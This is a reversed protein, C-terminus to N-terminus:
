RNDSTLGLGSSCANIIILRLDSEIHARIIVWNPGVGTIRASSHAKDACQIFDKKLASIARAANLYLRIGNMSPTDTEHM